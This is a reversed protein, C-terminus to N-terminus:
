AIELTARVRETDPVAQLAEFATLARSLHERAAPRDGRALELEGLECETRGVQWVTGLQRFEALAHDLRAGAEDFRGALRDAVGLARAAIARYLRHDDREALEALRPAFRALDAADRRSAASETLLMYVHHDHAMTGRKVPQGSKDLAAELTASMLAFEGKAALPL